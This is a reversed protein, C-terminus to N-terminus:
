ILWNYMNWEKISIDSVDVELLAGKKDGAVKWRATMYVKRNERDVLALALRDSYQRSQNFYFPRNNSDNSVYLVTNTVISWDAPNIELYRISWESAYNTHNNMLAVIMAIYDDSTLGLITGGYTKCSSYIVSTDTKGLLNLDEDFWVIKALQDIVHCSTSPFLLKSRTYLPNLIMPQPSDAGVDSNTIATITKAYVDLVYHPDGQLHRGCLVKLGDGYAIAKGSIRPNYSGFGTDWKDVLTGDRPDIYWLYPKNQIALLLLKRSLVQGKNLDPPVYFDSDEYEWLTTRTGTMSALDIDIESCRIKNTGSLGYVVRFIVRTESLTYEVLRCRAGSAETDAVDIFNATKDKIDIVVCSNGDVPSTPQYGIYYIKGGYKVPFWVDQQIDKDLYTISISPM